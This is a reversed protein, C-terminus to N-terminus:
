DNTMEVDFFLEFEAPETSHFNALELLLERPMCGEKHFVVPNPAFSWKDSCAGHTFELLLWDRQGDCRMSQLYAGNMRGGYPPLRKVDLRKIVAGGLRPTNFRLAEAVVRSHHRTGTPPVIFNARYSIGGSSRATNSSRKEGPVAGAVSQAVALGGLAIATKSLFDRRDM